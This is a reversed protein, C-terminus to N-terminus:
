NHAPPQPNNDVPHIIGGTAKGNARRLWRGLPLGAVDVIWDRNGSVSCGAVFQAAGSPSNFRLTRGLRLVGARDSSALSGDARLEGRLRCYPPALSPLDEERVTSGELLLVEGNRYVARAIASNYKMTLRVDSEDISADPLAEHVDSPEIETSFRHQLASLDRTLDDLSRVRKTCDDVLGLDQQECGRAGEKWIQDRVESLTEMLLEFATNVDSGRSM